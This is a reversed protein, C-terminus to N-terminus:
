MQTFATLRLLGLRGNQTESNLAPKSKTAVGAPAVRTSCLVRLAWTVRHLTGHSKEFFLLARTQTTTRM